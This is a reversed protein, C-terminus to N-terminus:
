LNKYAGKGTLANVVTQYNGGFRRRLERISLHEDRYLRRMEAVVEPTFRAKAGVKRNAALEEPTIPMM